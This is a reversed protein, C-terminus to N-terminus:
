STRVRGCQFWFPPWGIPVGDIVQKKEIGTQTTQFIQLTNRMITRLLTTKKNGVIDEGTIEISLFRIEGYLFVVAGERGVKGYAV